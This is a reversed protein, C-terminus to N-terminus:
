WYKIEQRNCWAEAMKMDYCEIFDAATFSNEFTISEVAFMDAENDVIGCAMIKVMETGDEDRDRYLLVDPLDHGTEIIKFHQM